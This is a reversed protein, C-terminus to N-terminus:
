RANSLKTSKNHLETSVCDATELLKALEPKKHRIKDAIELYTKSNANKAENTYGSYTLSSKITSVITKIDSAGIIIDEDTESELLIWFKEILNEDHQWSKEQEYEFDDLELETVFATDDENDIEIFLFRDLQQPNQITDDRADEIAAYRSKKSQYLLANFYPGHHQIYGDNIVVFKPDELKATAEIISIEHTKMHNEKVVISFLCISSSM